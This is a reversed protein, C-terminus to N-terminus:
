KKSSPKATRVPRARKAGDTKQQQRQKMENVIDHARKIDAKQTRKIGGTLLLILTGGVEIYYVRWGAGIHIRLEYVGEGVSAVDGLLGHKLREIRQAIAARVTEDDVGDLWDKFQKIRKVAPM